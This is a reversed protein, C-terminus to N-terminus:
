QCRSNVCTRNNTCLANPGCGVCQNGNVCVMGSYCTTGGCPILCVDVVCTEDSRCVTHNPGCGNSVCQGNTCTQGTPCATQGGCAAASQCQGNVCTQGSACPPNSGCVPKCVDGVCAQTALCITHNPGCGNSVCQGNVCSQGTSCAPLNGCTNAASQCQGNVCTQGNVCAPYNGCMPKCVDVVCSQGAACVTHNPGCGSSACQGNICSQGAACGPLGGCTTTAQCQGNVCTQGATCAPYNGCLAGTNPQFGTFGSVPFRVLQNTLDLTLADHNVVFRTGDDERGQIFLNGVSEGSALAYPLSLEAATSFRTGAPGWLAVAGAAKNDGGALSDSGLELTIVTDAALAGPPIVLRTGALEPSDAAEVSLTLGQAATVRESKVYRSGVTRTPGCGALVAFLCVVLSRRCGLSATHHIM